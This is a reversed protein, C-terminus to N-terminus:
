PVRHSFCNQITHHAISGRQIGGVNLLLPCGEPGEGRAAWSRLRWSGRGFQPCLSRFPVASRESDSFGLGKLGRTVGSSREVEPEGGVWRRIAPVKLEVRCGAQSANSLRRPLNM